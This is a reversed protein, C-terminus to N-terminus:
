AETWRGGPVSVRCDLRRWSRPLPLVLQRTITTGDHTLLTAASLIRRIAVHLRYWAVYNSAVWTQWAFDTVVSIRVYSYRIDWVGASKNISHPSCKLSHRCGTLFINDEFCFQLFLLLCAQLRLLEYSTRFSQFDLFIRFNYPNIM